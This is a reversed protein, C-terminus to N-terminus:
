ESDGLDAEVLVDRVQRLIKEDRTTKSRAVLEAVLGPLMSFFMSKFMTFVASARSPAAKALKPAVKDLQQILDANM